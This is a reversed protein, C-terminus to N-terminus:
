PIGGENGKDGADCGSAVRVDPAPGSRCGGKGARRSSTLTKSQHDGGREGEVTRAGAVLVRKALQGVGVPALELEVDVPDDARGLVGLVQELLRQEGCHRPSSRNSSRADTRAQSYRIAVLRARSARRALLRRGSSM